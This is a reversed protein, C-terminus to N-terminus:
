RRGFVFYIINEVIKPTRKIIYTFFIVILVHTMISISYIFDEFVSILNFYSRYFSVVKSRIRLAPPVHVYKTFVLIEQYM